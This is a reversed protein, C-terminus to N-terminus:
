VNFNNWYSHTLEESMYRMLNRYYKPAADTLGAKDASSLADLYEGRRSKRIIIPPYREKLLMFCLLMRGTRGNGDAFPHIRELQHHFVSARVLPHVDRNQHYWRILTAVDASIYPYPTAEFRSKFVRVDHTRLGKRDDINLMLSDHVNMIFEKDIEQRSGLLEFFVKETNQLDYVERLTRNKPTLSQTLLRNAEALTITNGELSATNFAFDVLFHAYTEDRIRREKKLFCRNFHLKVAEVAILRPRDFYPDGKVKGVQKHYHEQEVFKRINRYADRIQSKHLSPLEAVREGIKSSDNGLYAVDKVVVKGNVRKSVRLYYYPKENVVKRYIYAM